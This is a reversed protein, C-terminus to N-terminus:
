KANSTILKFWQSSPNEVCGPDDDDPCICKRTLIKESYDSDYHLCMNDRYNALQYNSVSKWMSKMNACDKTLVVPRGEGTSSLCFETGLLRIVHKDKDYRWYRGFSHCGSPQLEFKENVGICAGSKPHYLVDHTPVESHPDQIKGQISALRRQFQPNRVRTMNHDFVAYQEDDDERGLRIYYSGQVGWLNWDLDHEALYVLFCSFFNNDAPNTGEMNIGFETVFLPAPESGEVLFTSRRNMDRTISDCVHNLPQHLWRDRERNSFAYRHAEYVIKNDLNLRLPRKKLFSLDLDYSLGSVVVLVHPNTKHIAKAGKQVYNYWDESNQRPGRLENRLSMAVVTPTYKYFAAVIRLARLWEQPQLNKDGWFGNGDDNGCCWIPESVQCDLLVTVGNIALEDVVAKHAETLTLELIQPNNRRIGRIAAELGLDRFSDLVTRNAYRTYMYTAYTLRVNNFGTLAIHKAIESLPRKDLGEPLMPGVHGAWNLGALKVRKGTLDDVIWRSKTSLPLSLTLTSFCVFSLAVLYLIAICSQM